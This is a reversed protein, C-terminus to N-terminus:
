PPIRCHPSSSSGTSDSSRTYRPHAAGWATPSRDRLPSDSLDTIALRPHPAIPLALLFTTGDEGEHVIELRGGAREILVRCLDLGLGAGGDSEPGQRRASLGPGGDVIRIVVEDDAAATSILIPGPVSYRVANDVLIRVAHRLVLSDVGLSPAHELGTLDVVLKKGRVTAEAAFAGIEAGLARALGGTMGTRGVGGALEARALDLIETVVSLNKRFRAKLDTFLTTELPIGSAPAREVYDFAEIALALPARLDHALLSMLLRSLDRARLAEDRAREAEIRRKQLLLAVGCAAPLTLATFARNPVWTEPPAIPPAGFIAALVFGALSLVFTLWVVRTDDSTSSLFIPICLLLGVVTGAPVIWDVAVICAVTSLIAITFRHQRRM